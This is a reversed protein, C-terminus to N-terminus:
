KKKDDDDEDGANTTGSPNPPEDDTIPTMGVDLFANLLDNIPGEPMSGAMGYIGASGQKSKPDNTQEQKVEDVAVKLDDVFTQIHPVVSLTICVHVSAPHQLSNLSWGNNKKLVDAVRYVNVTSSGFCVVMTPRQGQQPDERDHGLVRLEPMSRRIENVLFESANLISRSREKYGNYGVTIMSSWACAILASPRSGAFTPTAYIGGTWKPYNFYQAHRLEPHRYLVVSTGKPAYGYKHTDMSMSTVGTCRFDFVPYRESVFPLVFGGLCADVHLGINYRVAIDSLAQIPDITGQPYNPASGIIMITNSSIRKRVQEPCLTYEQSQSLDITVKHIGYLECAKDVAAHVTSGCVLEPHRIGRRVGYYLWHAKIALMISETGGSTMCGTNTGHMMHSCMSIVSTECQNLKPWVGVHLANAYSYLSYVDNMLQTHKSNNAENSIYVTGSTKGLKWSTDHEKTSTATLEKLISTPEMGDMPLQQQIVRTSTNGYYSEISSQKMKFIEKDIEKKVAAVHQKCFTYVFEELFHQVEKITYLSFTCYVVRSLGLLANIGM